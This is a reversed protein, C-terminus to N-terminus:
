CLDGKLEEVQAKWLPPGCVPWGHLHPETAAWPVRRIGLHLIWPQLLVIQHHDVGFVGEDDGAVVAPLAEHVALIAEDDGVLSFPEQWVM